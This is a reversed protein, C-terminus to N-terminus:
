GKHCTLHQLIQDHMQITYIKMQFTNKEIQLKWKFKLNKWKYPINKNFIKNTKYLKENEYCVLIIM